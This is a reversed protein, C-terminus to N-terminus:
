RKKVYVEIISNTPNRPALFQDKLRYNFKLSNRLKFPYFNNLHPIYEYLVVDYYRNKVRDDFMKLEKNFMAVGLHNWLPYYNGTELTYGLDAALPTLETMNLVKSKNGKTFQPMEKLRYIGDITSQPMKVKKFVPVNSEKWLSTAVFGTDMNLVYNHRNVVNEGGQNSINSTSAFRSFVRDVYRWYTGSWWLMLLIATIFFMDAKALNIVKNETIYWAFYAFAFAHFFINNDVPVYSTVQFISAQILMGFTLLSFLVESIQLKEKHKLRHIGVVFMGILYFKIWQSGAMFEDFLDFLSLRSSHPAQGHNFWYTFSENLPLIFVLLWFVCSGVLFLLHKLQRLLIGYILSLGGAILIGLAGGDQKTFFSLILFFAGIFIFIAKLPRKEAFFSSSLFALAVLQFVIVTHNYWPWFNFFSYSICFVLVSLTIVSAKLGFNKLIQRFAIGSIINIFFQAKVLTILQAGFLKFFLAPIVWFGYGLPMGFDRYPIQGNAMRYAGEWTLFINVRYPYTLFLPIAAIVVIILYDFLKFWSSKIEANLFSNM